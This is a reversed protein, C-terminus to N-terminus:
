RNVLWIATVPTEKPADGYWFPLNQKEDDSEKNAHPSGHQKDQCVEALGM